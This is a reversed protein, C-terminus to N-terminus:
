PDFPTRVGPQFNYKINFSDRLVATHGADLRATDGSFYIDGDLASSRIVYGNFLAKRRPQHLNGSGHNAPVGAVTFRFSKGDRDAVDIATEEFWGVEVVRSFGMSRLYGGDGPPVVVLPDYCLLKKMVSSSVHDMHNHSLLCVPIPPCGEIPKGPETMRPYFLGNVSEETPDTLVMVRSRSGTNSLVPIGFLCTAHGIWFSSFHDADTFSLPM